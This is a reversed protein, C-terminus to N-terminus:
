KTELSSAKMPFNEFLRKIKSLRTLYKHFYIRNQNYLLMDLGHYFTM